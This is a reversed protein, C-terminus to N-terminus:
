VFMVEKYHATKESPTPKLFYKIHLFVPTSKLNVDLFSMRQHLNIIANFQEKKNLSKLGNCNLSLIKVKRRLLHKSQKLPKPSFSILPSGINSTSANTTTLHEHLKPYYLHEPFCVPQM